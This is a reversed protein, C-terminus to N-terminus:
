ISSPVADRIIEVTERKGTDNRQVTVKAATGRPGRLHDRVETFPKGVMSVGNVDLIKDGYRLGVRNAPANEFTARIYTGVM